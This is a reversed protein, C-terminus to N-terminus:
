ASCTGGTRGSFRGFARSNQFRSPSCRAAQGYREPHSRRAKPLRPRAARWRSAESLPVATSRVVSLPSGPIPLAVQRNPRDIAAVYVYGSSPDYSTPSVSVGGAEGPAVLQATESPPTFLNSQSVIAESEFLLDGTAREIVYYFGTKAGAGVAAVTRGDVVV